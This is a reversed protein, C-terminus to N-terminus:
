ERKPKREELWKIVECLDQMEATIDSKINESLEIVDPIYIIYGGAAIGALVGNVSDELVLCEEPQVGLMEAAMHFGQPDPKSRSVMDGYVFGTFYQYVGSRKLAIEATEKETSTCVAAPINQEKLYELIEVLGKKKPIEEELLFQRYYHYRRATILEAEEDIGLAERIMTKISVLNKGFLSNMLEDSIEYGYDVAAKKWCRESVPETDFMTGDMDFLVGKVM